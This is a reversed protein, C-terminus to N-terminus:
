RPLTLGLGLWLALDETEERVAATMQSTFLADQHIAHM